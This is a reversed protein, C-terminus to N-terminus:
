SDYSISHTQLPDRGEKYLGPPLTVLQNSRPSLRFTIVSQLSRLQDVHENKTSLIARTSMYAASRANDELSPFVHQILKNVCDDTITYGIVIDEPLHVYDNVITEETGNGIQLLYDSFWPDSQARMNRTLRIKRISDWLYSRQFTADTVQARTGRTVM